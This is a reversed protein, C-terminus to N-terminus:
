ATKCLPGLKIIDHQVHWRLNVEGAEVRGARVFGFGGSFRKFQFDFGPASGGYTASLVSFTNM